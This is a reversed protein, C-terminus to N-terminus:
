GAYPGETVTIIFTTSAEGIICDSSSEDISYTIEYTGAGISPDFVEGEEDVGEGSFNGGTMGGSDTLYNNLDVSAETSCLNQDAITGANAPEEDTVNINIVVSDICDGQQVTYTTSFERISNENFDSIISRVTPNFTGDRPVGPNLLDLLYNRVTPHDPATDALAYCIEATVPGGLDIGPVVTVNFTTEGSGDICDTEDEDENVSCTIADLESVTAIDLLGGDIEGDETSFTGVSVGLYNFLNLQTNSSCVELDDIVGVEVQEVENITITIVAQSECNENSVTYTTTFPQTFDGTTYYNLVDEINTDFEGDMDVEGEQNELLDDFFSLAEAPNAMLAEIESTCF